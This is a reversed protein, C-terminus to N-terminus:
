FILNLACAARWDLSDLDAGIPNLSIELTSSRNLRWASSLLLSYEKWNGWSYKPNLQGILIGYQKQLLLSITQRDYRGNIFYIDGDKASTENREWAYGADIRFASLNRSRYPLLSWKPADTKAALPTSDYTLHYAAEIKRYFTDRIGSFENFFYNDYDARIQYEQHLQFSDGLLIDCEPQWLLSSLTNNNASLWSDLFIEDKVQYLLRNAIRLRDKWFVIWGLRWANTLYDNDLKHDSDPYITRRLEITYEAQLSDYPNYEWNLGLGTNRVDIIRTNNIYSLDKIYYNYSSISNLTINGTLDYMLNLQALNNYDGNDRNRNKDHRYNMLNYSEAIQCRLTEGLPLDLNLNTNLSTRDQRDYQEYRSNILPSEPANLVFLDDTRAAANIGCTLSFTDTFYNGSVGATLQSYKEWNMQKNEASANLQVSREAEGAMFRAGASQFAGKSILKHDQLYRDEEQRYFGKLMASISLSDLPSVTVGYGLFGTKNQYPNLESELSSQDQLYEYGSLLEHSLLKNQNLMSLQLFSNRSTQDFDIRRDELNRSSVQMKWTKFPSLQFGTTQEIRWQKSSSYLNLSFDNSQACNIVPLTILAILWIFLNAKQM